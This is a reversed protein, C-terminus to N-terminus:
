QPCWADVCEVVTNEKSDFLLLRVAFASISVCMYMIYVYVDICSCSIWATYLRAYRSNTSLACPAMVLFCM